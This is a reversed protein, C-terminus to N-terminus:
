FIDFVHAFSEKSISEVRGSFDYSKLSDVAIGSHIRLTSRFAPFIACFYLGGRIEPISPPNHYIIHTNKM